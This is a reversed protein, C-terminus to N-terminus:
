YLYHPTTTDHVDELMSVGPYIVDMLIRVAAGPRIEPRTPQVGFLYEEITYRVDEFGFNARVSNTGSIRANVEFPVIEGDNTVISQLNCSGRIVLTSMLRSILLELQLDHQRSVVCTATTGDSLTRELTIHGHLAGDRTVYFATTIERGRYLRQILYEASSFSEPNPPNIHIDRSGRGRRPKVVTEEFENRYASPLVSAAFPINHSAFHLSTQYKDLFVEETSAPSIAITPLQDRHLALDFSEFDTSPIILDVNEDMCIRQIVGIFEHTLGRPVTYVADCLHNGATVAETNTGVLRLENYTHRLNRLIGQGVNGGIGTVLVTKPTM